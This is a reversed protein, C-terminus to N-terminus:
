WSLLPPSNGTCIANESLFLPFLLSPSILMAEDFALDKEKISEGSPVRAKSQCPMEACPLLPLSLPFFLILLSQHTDRVARAPFFVGGIAMNAAMFFLSFLLLSMRRRRSAAILAPLPPPSPPSPGHCEPSRAGRPFPLFFLFLNKMEDWFPLRACLVKGVLFLPLSSSQRM